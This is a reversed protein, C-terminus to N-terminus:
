KRAIQNPSKQPAGRKPAGWKRNAARVQDRRPNLGAAKLRRSLSGETVPENHETMEGILKKVATDVTANSPRGRVSPAESPGADGDAKGTPLSPVVDAAANPWMEELPPKPLILATGAYWRAFADRYLCWNEFHASRMKAPWDAYKIKAYAVFGADTQDWAGPMFDSNGGLVTAVNRRTIGPARREATLRHEGDEGIKTVADRATSYAYQGPLEEFPKSSIPGKPALLIFVESMKDREFAGRWFASVLAEMMREHPENGLKSWRGAIEKFTLHIADDFQPDPWLTLVDVRRFRVDKPWSSEAEAWTEPPLAKGDKFARLNGYQLAHLLTREPHADAMATAFYQAVKVSDGIQTSNRFAIWAIVRSWPWSPEAFRMARIERKQAQSRGEATLGVWWTIIDTRRVVVIGAGGRSTPIATFIFRRSHPNQRADVAVPKPPENTNPLAVFSALQGSSIDALMRQKIREPNPIEVMRACYKIIKIARRARIFERPVFDRNLIKAAVTGNDQNVPEFTDHGTAVADKWNILMEKASLRVHTWMPQEGLRGLSRAGLLDSTFALSNWAGKEIPERDASGPRLGTASLKGSRLQEYIEALARSQDVAAALEISLPPDPPGEAECAAIDKGVARDPFRLRWSAVRRVMEDSNNAVVLWKPDRLRVWIIAAIPMWENTDM